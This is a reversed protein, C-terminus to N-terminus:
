LTEKVLENFAATVPEESWQKKKCPLAAKSAASYCIYRDCM